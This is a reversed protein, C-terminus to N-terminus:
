LRSKLAQVRGKINEEFEKDSFKPDRTQQWIACPIENCKGCDTLKKNNVTCNYIACTTGEPLYFVKGECNNCGTCMGGYFHCTSCDTGCVSLNDMNHVGKM